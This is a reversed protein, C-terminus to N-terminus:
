SEESGFPVSVPLPTVNSLYPPPKVACYRRLYKEIRNRTAECSEETWVVHATPFHTKYLDLKMSMLFTEVGVPTKRGHVGDVYIVFIRNSSDTADLESIKCPSSWEVYRKAMRGRGIHLRFLEVSTKLSHLVRKKIISRGAM